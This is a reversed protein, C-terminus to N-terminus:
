LNFIIPKQSIKLVIRGVVIKVFIYYKVPLKFRKSNKVIFTENYM